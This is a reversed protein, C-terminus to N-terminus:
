LEIEAAESGQPTALDVIILTFAEADPAVRFIAKGPRSVGPNVDEFLISENVNSYEITLDSDYQYSRGQGDVLRWPMGFVTAPRNGNHTYTFEVVVFNGSKPRM